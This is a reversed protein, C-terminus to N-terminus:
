LKMVAMLKNLNLSSKSRKRRRKKMKRSSRVLREKKKIM